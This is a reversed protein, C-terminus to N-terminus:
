PRYGSAMAAQSCCRRCFPGPRRRIVQHAHDALRGAVAAAGLLAEVLRDVEIGPM